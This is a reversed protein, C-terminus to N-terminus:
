EALWGQISPEPYVQAEGSHFHLEMNSSRMVVEMPLGISGDTSYTAIRSFFTQWQSDCVVTSPDLGKSSAYSACYEPTAPNYSADEGVFYLVELGVKDSKWSEIDPIRQNCAPCWGSTLVMWVLKSDADDCSDHLNRTTGDALSLTMDAINAKIGNGNGAAVCAQDTTEPVDVDATQFVGDLRTEAICWSQGGAVPTSQYSQSDITVEQMVINQVTAVLRDADASFTDIQVVGESAYFTKQCGANQSCNTRAVVCLGCTAYNSGDLQYTGPGTPGGFDGGYIEVQLMDYPESANNVAYVVSFQDGQRQAIAQAVNFGEIDCTGGGTTGGTTGGTNGGTTGDTTGGTTDGTTDGTSASDKATTDSGCAALFFLSCIALGFSLKKM